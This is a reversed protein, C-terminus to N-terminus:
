VSRNQMPAANMSSSVFLTTCNARSKPVVQNTFASTNRPTM